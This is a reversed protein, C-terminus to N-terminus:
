PRCAAAAHYIKRLRFTWCFRSQEIKLDVGNLAHVIEGDPRRFSKKVGSFEIAGVM